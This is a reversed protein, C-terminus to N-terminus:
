VQSLSYFKQDQFTYLSYDRAKAVINRKDQYFFQGTLPSYGDAFYASFYRMDIGSAIVLNRFPKAEYSLRNRTYLLPLHIPAAGAM